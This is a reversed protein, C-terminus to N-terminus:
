PVPQPSGPNAVHRVRGQRLRDQDSRTFLSALSDPIGDTVTAESKPNFLPRQFLVIRDDEVYMLQLQYNSGVLLYDPAGNQDLYHRVTPDYAAETKMRAAGPGGDRVRLVQGQYENLSSGMRLGARQQSCGIAVLLGFLVPTAKTAVM